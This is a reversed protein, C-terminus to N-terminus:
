SFQKFSEDSHSLETSLSLCFSSIDYFPVFLCGVLWGVQDNSVVRTITM